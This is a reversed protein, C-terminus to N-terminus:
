RAMEVDDINTLFELDSLRGGQLKSDWLANGTSVDRHVFGYKWLLQLALSIIHPVDFFTFHHCGRTCDYLTKCMEQVPRLNYYPECEEFVERYHVRPKFQSAMLRPLHSSSVVGTETMASPQVDLQSGPHMHKEPKLSPPVLLSLSGKINDDVLTQGAVFQTTIVESGEMIVPGSLSSDHTLFYRRYSELDVTRAEKNSNSM